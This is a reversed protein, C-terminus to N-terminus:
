RPKEALKQYLDPDFEQLTMIGNLHNAALWPLWKGPDGSWSEQEWGPGVFDFADRETKGQRTKPGEERLGLCAAGVGAVAL